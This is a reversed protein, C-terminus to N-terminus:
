RAEMVVMEAALRNLLFDVRARMDPYYPDAQLLSTIEDLSAVALTQTYTSGDREVIMRECVFANYERYVRVQLTKRGHNHVIEGFIRREALNAKPKM